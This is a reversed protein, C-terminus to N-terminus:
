NMAWYLFSFFLFNSFYIKLCMLKNKFRNQALTDFGQQFSVLTFLINCCNTIGSSSFYFSLPGNFKPISFYFRCTSFKEPHKWDCTESLFQSWTSYVQQPQIQNSYVQQLWIQNSFYNNPLYKALKQAHYLLFLPWKQDFILTAPCFTIVKSSLTNCQSKHVLFELWPVTYSSALQLM